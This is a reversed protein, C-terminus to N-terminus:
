VDGYKEAESRATRPDDAVRQELARVSRGGAGPAPSERAHKALAAALVALDRERGVESTTEALLQAATKPTVWRLEATERDPPSLQRLPEMLFYSTITNEGEFRGAIPGVIRCEWGTEELVERLAAQEASEEPEGGGKAFTWAYGGFGGRPTRLLIKGDRDVVVGGFSGRMAEDRESM